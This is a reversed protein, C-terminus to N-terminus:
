AYRGCIYPVNLPAAGSASLTSAAIMTPLDSQSWLTAGIRPSMQSLAVPNMNTRARLQPSSGTFGVYVGLAYKQGKVFTYTSPYSPPGVASALSVENLAFATGYAGTTLASRAALTLNDNPGSPDRDVTYVGLRTSASVSSTSFGTAVGLTNM